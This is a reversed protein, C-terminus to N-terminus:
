GNMMLKLKREHTSEGTVCDVCPSHEVPRREPELFLTTVPLGPARQRYRLQRRHSKCIFFVKLLRHKSM